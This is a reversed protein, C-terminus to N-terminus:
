LYNKVPNILLNIDPSNLIKRMRIKLKTKMLFRKRLEQPFDTFSVLQLTLFMRLSDEISIDMKWDLLWLQFKIFRVEWYENLIKKM